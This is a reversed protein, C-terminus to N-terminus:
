FELYPEIKRLFISDFSKIAFLSKVDVYPGHQNRYNIITNAQKNNIYVHSALTSFSCTNINIKQVVFSSDVYLKEKINDFTEIPLGYVEKLQERSYFGGVLDRYKVIRNAFVSGIGKLLKWQSTDATNIDIYIDDIPMEHVLLEQKNTRMEIPDIAITIYPELRKYHQDSVVYIKALDEKKYFKGGKAEYNKIVDIQRDSFGLKQWSERDLNNPNFNFYSVETKRFRDSNSYGTEVYMEVPQSRKSETKIPEEYYVIAYKINKAPKSLKIFYPIFLVAIIIVTFAILGRQEIRNFEFFSFFKKM